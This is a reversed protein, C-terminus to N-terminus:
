PRWVLARAKQQREIHQAPRGAADVANCVAGPAAQCRPCSVSVVQLLSVARANPHKYPSKYGARAQAATSQAARKAQEEAGVPEGRRRQREEKLAAAKAEVVPFQQVSVGRGTRGHYAEVRAGHGARVTCREGREAKCVPCAVTLLEKVTPMRFPPPTGGKATATSKKGSRPVVEKAPLAKQTEVTGDAKTVTM